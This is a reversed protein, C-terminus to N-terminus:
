ILCCKGSHEAPRCARSLALGVIGGYVSFAKFGNRPFGRVARAVAGLVVAACIARFTLPRFHRAAYELLSGYWYQERNELALAGITHSGSHKAAAAPDYYTSYGAAKIRACFDVDEFWIPRFREDFGGVKNWVARSFMLFAGAPQEIRALSMPDLGLCRYHWNVPNGPWLRNIGLIEFILAGPTPLNRAMFGLQPKGDEGILMGGVAGTGPNELHAAMADLGRVLRADPNLSLILPARTARVGQNMAAAFGANTGNAILKFNPRANSGIKSGIKSGINRAVVERTGDSSANDVVLVEADDESLEALSDLCGGIEAASNYTVVVIAVRAM